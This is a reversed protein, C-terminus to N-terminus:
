VSERWSAQVIPREQRMAEATVKREAWTLWGKASEVVKWGVGTARRESLSLSVLSRRFGLRGRREGLKAALAFALEM